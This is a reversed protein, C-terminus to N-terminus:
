SDKLVHAVRLAGSCSLRAQTGFGWCDLWQGQLVTRNFGKLTSVLQRGDRFHGGAKLMVKLVQAYLLVSDHLYAAYPSM